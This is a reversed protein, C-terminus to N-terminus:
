FLEDIKGTRHAYQIKSRRENWKKQDSGNAIIDMRENFKNFVTPRVSRCIELDKDGCFSDLAILFERYVQQADGARLSNFNLKLLVNPLIYHTLSYEISAQDDRMNHVKARRRLEAVQSSDMYAQVGEAELKELDWVLIQYVASPALTGLADSIKHKLVAIRVGNLRSIHWKRIWERQEDDVSEIQGICDPFNVEFDRILTEWHILASQLSNEESQIGSSDFRIAHTNLKEGQERAQARVSTAVDECISGQVIGLSGIM